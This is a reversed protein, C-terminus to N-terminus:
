GAAAARWRVAAPVPLGSSWAAACSTARACAAAACGSVTPPEPPLAPLATHTLITMHSHKMCTLAHTCTKHTHANPRPHAQPTQMRMHM